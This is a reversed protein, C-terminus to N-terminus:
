AVISFDFAKLTMYRSEKAYETLESLLSADDSM